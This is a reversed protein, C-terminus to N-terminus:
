PRGVAGETPAADSGPPLGLAWLAVLVIVESVVLALGWTAHGAWVLGLAAMAFLALEAGVRMPLSLDIRRRPSLLVGWVVVAVSVAGLALAWSLWGVTSLRAALVGITAFLALELVFRLGLLVIVVAEPKWLMGAQWTM